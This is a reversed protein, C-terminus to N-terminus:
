EFSACWTRQYSSVDNMCAFQKSISVKDNVPVLYPIASWSNLKFFLVRGNLDRIYCDTSVGNKNEGGSSNPLTILALCTLNAKM